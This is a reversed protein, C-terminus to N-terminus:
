MQIGITIIREKLENPQAAVECENKQWGSQVVAWQGQWKSQTRGLRALGSQM